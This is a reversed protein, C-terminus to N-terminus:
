RVRTLYSTKCRRTGTCNQLALTNRAKVTLTGTYTAGDARDHLTGKWQDAAAKRANEIIQLGVMPGRDDARVGTGDEANTVKVIKGCLGEGCKYMEVHSGNVPHEWVGFADEATHAKAMSAAVAILAGAVVAYHLTKVVGEEV